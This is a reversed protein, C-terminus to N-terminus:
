KAPVDGQKFIYAPKGGNEVLIASDLDNGETYFVRKGDSSACLFSDMGNDELIQVSNIADGYVKLREALDEGTNATGAVKLRIVNGFGSGGMRYIHVYLWEGAPAITQVGM